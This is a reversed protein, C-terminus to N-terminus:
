KRRRELFVGATWVGLSFSIAAFGFASLLRDDAVCWFALGILMLAMGGLAFVRLPKFWEPAYGDVLVFLLRLVTM